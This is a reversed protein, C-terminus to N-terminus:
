CCGLLGAAVAFKQRVCLLFTALSVYVAQNVVLRTFQLSSSCDRNFNEHTETEASARFRSKHQRSEIGTSKLVFLRTGFALGSRM